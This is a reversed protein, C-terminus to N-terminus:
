FADRSADIDDEVINTNMGDSWLRYTLGNVEYEFPRGWPDTIDIDAVFNTLDELNDPYRYNEIRWEELANALTQLNARAQSEASKRNALSAVGSVIGILIAIIAITVLLEILTFGSSASKHMTKM